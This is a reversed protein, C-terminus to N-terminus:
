VDKHRRSDKLANRLGIVALTGFAINTLAFSYYGSSLGFAIFILTGILMVAFGATRRNYALLATATLVFANAIWDM